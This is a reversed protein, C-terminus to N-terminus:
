VNGQHLRSSKQWEGDVAILDLLSNCNMAHLTPPLTLHTHTHQTLMSTVSSLPFQTPFPPPFPLFTSRSSDSCVYMSSYVFLSLVFAEGTKEIVPATITAILHPLCSTWTFHPSRVLKMHICTLQNLISLSLSPLFRFSPFSCDLSDPILSM